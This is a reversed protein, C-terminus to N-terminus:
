NVDAVSKSGFLFVAGTKSQVRGLKDKKLISDELGGLATYIKHTGFGFPPAIVSGELTSSTNKSLLTGVSLERQLKPSDAGVVMSPSKSVTKSKSEDKSEREARTEAKTETEGEQPMKFAQNVQQAAKKSAEKEYLTELLKEVPVGMNLSMKNVIEEKQQVIEEALRNDIHKYHQRPVSLADKLEDIQIDKKQIISELESRIQEHNEFEFVCYEKYKGFRTHLDKFTEVFHGSLAMTRNHNAKLISKKEEQFM